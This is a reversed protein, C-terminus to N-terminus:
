NSSAQEESGGRTQQGILAETGTEAFRRKALEELLEPGKEEVEQRIVLERRESVERQIKARFDITETYIGELRYETEWLERYDKWDGKELARRKAEHIEARAVVARDQRQRDSMQEGKFEGRLIAFAKNWYRTAQRKSVHYEAQLARMVSHKAMGGAISSYARGIRAEMEAKSATDQKSM